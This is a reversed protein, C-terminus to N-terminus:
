CFGIVFKCDSDDPLSPSIVVKQFGLESFMEVYEQESYSKLTDRYELVRGDEEVIYHRSVAVRDSPFWFSEQLHLHPSDSFLGSPLARWSSSQKGLSEIKTESFAELVM